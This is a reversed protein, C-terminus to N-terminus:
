SIRPWASRQMKMSSPAGGRSRFHKEPVPVVAQRERIRFLQRPLHISAGIRPAQDLLRARVQEGCVERGPPHLLKHRHHHALVNADPLGPQSLRSSHHEQTARAGARWPCKWRQADRSRGRLPRSRAFICPASAKILACAASACSGAPM